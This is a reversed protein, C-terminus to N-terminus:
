NSKLGMFHNPHAPCDFIKIPFWKKSAEFHAWSNKFTSNCFSLIHISEIPQHNQNREIAEQTYMTNSKNNNLNNYLIGM